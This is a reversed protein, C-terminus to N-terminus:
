KSAFDKEGSWFPRKLGKGFLYSVGFNFEPGSHNKSGGLPQIFDDIFNYSMDAGLMFTRSVQIDVGGGLHGGFTTMARSDRISQMGAVSKSQFGFHPGVEASVFPRWTTRLTTKLPYYRLGVMMPMVGIIETSLDEAGIKSELESALYSLSFTIALNEQMWYGYSLAGSFGINSISTSIGDQDIQSSPNGVQRWMGTKFEIRSRKELMDAQINTFVFLFLVCCIFIQLISKKPM